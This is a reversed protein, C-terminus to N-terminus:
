QHDLPPLGLAHTVWPLTVQLQDRQLARVGPATPPEPLGARAALYGSIVAALAGADPLIAEPAPGGEVALSPLWAAVDFLPNGLAAWNWDVLVVRDDVFCLNDSRVDCHLLANGVVAGQGDVALLVPLAAELWQHSVLHLGLFPAPDAAVKTWGALLDNHEDLKQVGAVSSHAVVALTAQVLEIHQSTWPPPWYAHSLDELVLIPREGDDHWGLLQPLFTGSLSQYVAYEHRLWAATDPTTALKIFVTAHDALTAVIRLAATYGRRVPRLHVIPQRVMREIPLRDVPRLLDM